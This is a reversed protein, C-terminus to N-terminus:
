IFIDLITLGANLQGGHHCVICNMDGQYEGPTAITHTYQFHKANVHGFNFVNVWHQNLAPDAGYVNACRSILM